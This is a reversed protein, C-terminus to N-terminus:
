LGEDGTITQSASLFAYDASPIKQRLIDLLTLRGDQLHFGSTLPEHVDQIGPYAFHVFSVGRKLHINRILDREHNPITDVMGLPALTGNLNNTTVQFRRQCSRSHLLKDSFSRYNFPLVFPRGTLQLNGM